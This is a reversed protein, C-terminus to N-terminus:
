DGSVNEVLETAPVRLAQWFLEAVDSDDMPSLVADRLYAFAGRLQQRTLDGLQPLVYAVLAEGLLQPDDDAVGPLTGLARRAVLYRAVDLVIAPGLPCAPIRTLAYVREDLEPRGTPAVALLLQRYEDAPPNSMELVAFRRLLAYSMNFLLDRDRSNLTAIMRWNSGIRHVHTRLPEIGGDPVISVPMLQGDVSEDFPLTVSQGSLVTFLQGFAKDIDARNLEDVLLWDNADIARLVQGARFQLRQDSALWYGGVTDSTSWDATATALHWGHALGAAQAAESLAQGFTTKGTGPPGTLLLHKGSFLAAVATAVNEPRLRLERENVKQMVLEYTFDDFTAPASPEAERNAPAPGPLEEISGVGIVEMLRDVIRQALPAISHVPQHSSLPEKGVQEFTLAPEITQYRDFRARRHSGDSVEIEGVRGVGVIRQPNPTTSPPRSLVLVDGPELLRANPINSPFAYEMGEGELGPAQSVMWSRRLPADTDVSLEGHALQLLRALQADDLRGWGFLATRPLRLVRSFNNPFTVHVAPDFVQETHIPVRVAYTQGDKWPVPIDTPWPQQPAATVRLLRVFGTGSVWIALLDGAKLRAATGIAGVNGARIGWAGHTLALDFNEGSSSVIYAGTIDSHSAAAEEAM